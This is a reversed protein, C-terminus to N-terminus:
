WVTTTTRDKGKSRKTCAEIRWVVLYVLLLVLVTMIAYLVLYGPDGVLSAFLSLPSNPIPWNVFLYNCGFRKDFIYIPATVVCLFLLVWHIHHVSPHIEGKIWLLIPYLVLLGHWVYSHLNIFNWVPYLYTWDADFLAFLSAPLILVFAVEGFVAKAKEFPLYERLLFVFIGISCIHLPLYGLGFRHVSVLFLDKWAELIVMVIPILKLIAKQAKKNLRKFCFCLIVVMGLTIGVSVLHEPGFLPYGTGSPIDDQQKWFYEM